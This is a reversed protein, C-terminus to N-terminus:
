RSGRFGRRRTRSILVWGAPCQMRGGPRLNCTFIGGCFPPIKKDVIRDRYAGARPLPKEPVADARLIGAIVVSPLPIAKSFFPIRCGTGRWRPFGQLGPMAATFFLSRRGAPVTPFRPMRCVLGEGRRLFCGGASEECSLPIPCGTRCVGFLPGLCDVRWLSACPRGEGEGSLVRRVLPRGGAPM